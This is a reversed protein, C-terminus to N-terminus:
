GGTPLGNQYNSPRPNIANAPLKIKGSNIADITQKNASAVASNSQYKPCLQLTEVAPNQLDQLITGPKITHHM